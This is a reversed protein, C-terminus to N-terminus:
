TSRRRRRSPCVPRPSRSCPCSRRGSSRSGTTPRAAPRYAREGCPSAVRRTLSPASSRGARAVMNAHDDSWLLRAVVFCRLDDVCFREPSLIGAITQRGLHSDKGRKPLRPVHDILQRKSRQSLVPNDTMHGCAARLDTEVGHNTHHRRLWPPAAGELSSREPRVRRRDGSRELVCGRERGPDTQDPKQSVRNTPRDPATALWHRSGRPMHHEPHSLRARPTV